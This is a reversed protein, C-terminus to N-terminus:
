KKKQPRQWNKITQQKSRSLTLEGEPTDRSITSGAGITAGKGITVPAVLQSDSGIFANDGIITKYKYAGDYNCTITGAGINVQKGIEADGIYSLHNIKSGAGITSKKIEVFNGIHTNESLVTEPRVRAFPGIRSGAGIKADELVSNAFVQVDDGIAVNKLVVNPGISVRDGLEVRGEMVVNVDIRVDKGAECSGRLDFRSADALTVGKRMLEQAQRMQYSREMMQLQIKDNIGTVEIEDDTVTAVVTVGDDVAMEIIDTLYYEGQANDNQLRDLWQHLQKAQVALIGTNIENIARDQESADKHEVIRLVQDQANRVIRGYGDPESLITTLVGMHQDDVTKILNDLTEKRILPVDGYLVLAISDQAVAPMAQQVAHGTGLQEPQEIWDVGLHGLQDQVHEGGHGYVVHIHSSQLRQATAIVHALMPRGGLEHLVKPKDSHMRTGQGAALIIIETDMM